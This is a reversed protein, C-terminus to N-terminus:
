LVFEHSSREHMRGAAGRSAHVPSIATGGIAELLGRNANEITWAHMRPTTASDSYSRSPHFISRYPRTQPRTLICCLSIISPYEQASGPATLMHICPVPQLQTRHLGHCSGERALGYEIMVRRLNELAHVRMPTLTIPNGHVCCSEQRTQASVRYRGCEVGPLKRFSAAASSYHSSYMRVCMCAAGAVGPQAHAAQTHLKVLCSESGRVPRVVIVTSDHVICCCSATQKPTVDM